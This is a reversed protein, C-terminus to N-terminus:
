FKLELINKGDVRNYIMKKSHSRALSIGMGGTDLEEFDKKKVSATVPDFPIGNDYFTVGFGNETRESSFRIQDANSYNVINSFIEECALIMGRAQETNGYATLITQKVAKFSSIDPSLKERGSGYGTFSVAACTIDDFQPLGDTYADVSRVLDAIYTCPISLVGEDRIRASVAKLLREGGYQEKESNIAETIGDTFILLCEGDKLTLEKEAYVSDDFMGLAAMINKAELYFPNQNILLPEMHGANVYTVRGTKADLILALATAFMDEPNALCIERNVFTFTEALSRGAKLNERISTEVMVMFMAASVGKGSVDGLVLCLRDEDLCFLDYFDGGVERAPKSFGYAEYGDGSLSHELPVIGCQIKRAVDLETQTQIKEGTLISIEGIYDSIDGTMQKFSHEMDTVEDEFLPTRIDTKLHAKRDDIFSQMRDSLNRIPRIVSRRILLLAIATAAGFILLELILERRLSTFTKAKLSELSYDAGVLAVLQNDSDIVPLIYMCVDGLGNDIFTYDGDSKRELVNKEADYLAPEKQVSGYGYEANIKRDDDDNEAASVLYHRYGEDDVVYLYLYRLGAERCIFRFTRRTKERFSEDEYLSLASGEDGIATMAAVAALRATDKSQQAAIKLQNSYNFVSGCISSVLIAALFMFAIRILIPVRIRKKQDLAEKRKSRM